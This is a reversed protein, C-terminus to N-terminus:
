PIEFVQAGWVWCSPRDGIQVLAAENDGKNWTVPAKGRELLLVGQGFSLTEVITEWEEITEIGARCITGNPDNWGIAAKFGQQKLHEYQDEYMVLEKRISLQMGNEDYFLVTSNEGSGEHWTTPATGEMIAEYRSGPVIKTVKSWNKPDHANTRDTDWFVVIMWKGVVITPAYKSVDLPTPTLWPTTTPWSTPNTYVTPHMSSLTALPDPTEFKTSKLPELTPGGVTPTAPAQTSSGSLPCACAIIAFVLILAIIQIHRKSFLNKLLTDM